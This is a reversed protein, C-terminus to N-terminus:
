DPIALKEATRIEFDLKEVPMHIAAPQAYVKYIFGGQNSGLTNCMEQMYEAMEAEPMAPSRQIDTPCCFCFKGKWRSLVELSINKQQDLQLVDIGMEAFTDLLYVIHGCSHLIYKMGKAHIYDVFARM